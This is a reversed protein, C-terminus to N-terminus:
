KEICSNILSDIVKESCEYGQYILKSKYYFNYSYVQDTGNIEKIFRTVVKNRNEGYKEKNHEIVYLQKDFGSTIVRHKIDEIDYTESVILFHLDWKKYQDELDSYFKLNECSSSSCYPIWSYYCVFPYRRLIEKITDSTIQEIKLTDPNNVKQFLHVPNYSVFYRKESEDLRKYNINLGQVVCSVFGIMLIVIIFGINIKNKM